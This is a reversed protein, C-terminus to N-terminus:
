FRTYIDIFSRMPLDVDKRIVRCIGAEPGGSLLEQQLCATSPPLTRPDHSLIAIPKGVSYSVKTARCMNPWYYQVSFGPSVSRVSNQCRTILPPCFFYILAFREASDLCRLPPLQTHEPPVELAGAVIFYASKRLRSNVYRGQQRWGGRYERHHFLIVLLDPANNNNTNNNNDDDDDDDDGDDDKAGKHLTNICINGLCVM